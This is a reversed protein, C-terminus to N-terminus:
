CRRSVVVRCDGSVTVGELSAPIVCSETYALDTDGEPSSVHAAGWVCTLLFYRGDTPVQWSDRVDIVDCTFAENHIARHTAPHDVREPDGVHAVTVCNSPNLVEFGQDVHLERGRGWDCLRFTTNGFSGIEVSLIGPGMAHMTGSPVQVFDGPHVPVRLGYREGITDNASAERLAELDCTTCGGILEAGPEAECIYWCEVKGRDGVLRAADEEGPHVQVSLFEKADMFITQLSETDETDGLVEDHYARLFEDYAMGEGPGSAVQSTVGEHASIDFSEGYNEEGSPELGRIQALRTGAWVPSIVHPTLTIPGM